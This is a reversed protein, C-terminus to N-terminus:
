KEALSTRGRESLRMRIARESRREREEDSLNLKYGRKYSRQSNTIQSHTGHPVLELNEPRNDDKVGNRHHVDEWSQLPRGIIGEMIWRHQKIYVRNGDVWVRGEIYGRPNKWWIPGEKSNRGGNNAWACKRSCYKSTAAKPRFTAGCQPCTRNTLKRNRRGWTDTLGSQPSSKKPM